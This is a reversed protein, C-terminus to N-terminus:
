RAKGWSLELVTLDDAKPTGKSFNNTYDILHQILSEEKMHRKIFQVIKNFGIREGKKNKSEFVGDTVFLLRDGKKLSIKFPRYEVPLIGLPPGSSIEMVKVDEETLWILPPHGASSLSIRGSSSDIMGYVGTLFMGRPAQSLISNLRSLAIEPSKCQPAIYRFDSIVKAMYLSASIGKGSVDGIFVGINDTDIEIFDYLDGGVKEASINVASLSLKGRKFIHSEPLFSKQIISAIELEHKLREKEISEKHFRANEIAIAVQRCLTQFIELDDDDFFEKEKPNLIEAVGILGTRGILPIAILSRTTFKTLRDAEGYFRSDKKADKIILPEQHKAVWGAIGQGIELTVRSKLLSSIKDDRSLALDFELRKKEKNYILISCAEANMLVKAKEMVLRILKNFDLTSSIIASVEILARLAEIKKEIRKLNDKKEKSPSDKM